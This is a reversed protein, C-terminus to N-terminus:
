FPPPPPLHPLPPPPPLPMAARSIGGPLPMLSIVPRLRAGGLPALPPLVSPTGAGAYAAAAIPPLLTPAAPPAASPPTSPLPPPPPLSAVVVAIAPPMPLPPPPLAITQRQPSAELVVSPPPPLTGPWMTPPSLADVGAAPPPPLADVSAAPPPLAVVGTAPPPPLAVFVPAARPSAAVVSAVPIPAGAHPYHPTEGAHTVADAAPPTPDDGDGARVPLLLAAEAVDRGSEVIVPAHMWAVGGVPNAAPPAQSSARRPSTAIGVGRSEGDRCSSDAELAVVVVALASASDRRGAAVLNGAPRRAVPAVSARRMAVPALRAREDGDDGRGSGLITARRHQLLQPLTTIVAAAASDDGRTTDAAATAAGDDPKREVAAPTPDDDSRSRSSRRSGSSDSRRRDRSSRGGGSSSPASLRTSRLRPPVTSGSLRPRSAAAVTATPPRPTGFHRLLALHNAPPAAPLGGRRVHPASAASAAAAMDVLAYSARRMRRGAKAAVAVAAATAADRRSQLLAVVRDAVRGGLQRLWVLVLVFVTTMNLLILGVTIGTTWPTRDLTGAIAQPLMVTSVAATAYLTVLALLELRNFQRDAYPSYRQQIVIFGAFLLVAGVVQYFPDAVITALLVVGAKRLLVVAEWWVFMTPKHTALACARRVFRKRAAKRRVTRAEADPLRNVAGSAVALEAPHVMPAAADLEELLSHQAGDGARYGQYLFGYASFFHPDTLQAPTMRALIRFVTLPVGAGFVVLVVIALTAALAQEGEYCAVALDSTLWWHGDIATPTCAMVRLSASVIPMYTLMFMFMLVATHRRQALWDAMAARWAGADFAVRRRSIQCARAATLAAVIAVSGAAAVAPLSVTSIYRGLMSWQLLCQVTGSSLPSESASDTWGMASRFLHTGGAKFVQLLSLAQLFGLLLKLAVAAPNVGTQTRKRLAIFALFAVFAVVLGGLYVASQLSTWCPRCVKGMVGYGPQCVGCLPGGYGEACGYGEAAANLTCAETNFCELLLSAPGIPTSRENVPRFYNPLLTLHGDECVAGAAPCAICEQENNGRTFTGVGCKSCFLGAPVEGARCPLMQVELDAGGPLRLAGLWCAAALNYSAGRVGVVSMDLFAQQRGDSGPVAVSDANQVFAQQSTGNVVVLTVCHTDPPVAGSANCAAAAAAPSSDTAVGLTWPPVRGGEDTVPAAPPGTVGTLDRVPVSGGSPPPGDGDGRACTARRPCPPPPFPAVVRVAPFVVAHSTANPERDDAPMALTAAGSVCTLQCTFGPPPAMPTLSNAHVVALALPPDLYVPVTGDSPLFDAPLAGAPTLALPTALLTFTPSMVTRLWLTCVLTAVLSAGPSGSVAIVVPALLSGNSAVDYVAALAAQTFQLSAADGPTAAAAVLRCTAAASALAAPAGNYVVAGAAHAVEALFLEGPPDAVAVRAPAAGIAISPLRVREGTPAWTCEGTVVATEGWAAASLSLDAAIFDLCHTVTVLSGNAVSLVLDSAGPTCTGAFTLAVQSVAPSPASSLPSGPPPGAGLFVAGICSLLGGVSVAATANRAADMAAADVGAAAAPSLVWVASLAIPPLPTPPLPSDTLASVALPPATANSHWAAALRPLTYPLGAATVSVAGNNDACTAIVVGGEGGGASVGAADYLLTATPTAAGVTVRLTITGTTAADVAVAPGVGAAAGAPLTFTPTTTTNVLSLWCSGSGAGEVRLRLPPVLPALSAGTRGSPAAVRVVPPVEAEDWRLQLASVYSINHPTALPVGAANVVSVPVTPYGLRSLPPPPATCVLTANGLTTVDTCPLDAISVALLSGHCAAAAGAPTPSCAAAPFLAAQLTFSVRTNGQVLGPAVSLLRPAGLLTVGAAGDRMVVSGGRWTVTPVVTSTGPACATARWSECVATDDRLVTVRTCPYSGVVAAILRPSAPSGFGTGRLTFNWEATPGGPLCAVMTPAISALTPPLFALSNCSSSSSSGSANHAGAVSLMNGGGIPLGVRVRKDIGDSVAGPGVGGARCAVVGAAPTVYCSPPAAGVWTASGNWCSPVADAPWASRPPLPRSLTALARNGRRDLNLATTAAVSASLLTLQPRRVSTALAAGFSVPTTGIAFTALLELPTDFAATPLRWPTCTVSDNGAVVVNSCPLPANGPAAPLTLYVATPRAVGISDGTVTLTDGYAAGSNVALPAVSCDHPLLAPKAVTYWYSGVSVNFTATSWYLTAAPVAATLFTDNVVTLPASAGGM